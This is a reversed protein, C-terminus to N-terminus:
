GQGDNAAPMADIYRRILEIGERHLLERGLEPMQVGPDDSEMRHVLISRDAHGPAINFDHGGSGRGAAVPRKLIGRAVSDPEEYTLFLGSNSASGNRRHCHACNVDLYARAREDLTGTAPDDWVAIRPADAPSRGLIGWDVWQALRTGNNLNRASPGIPQIEDDRQHCGKCQNQNPVRYSFERTEGDADIFSAPMRRGARALVAETGDANWVYPLAVWGDPRRLMVRTELLRVPSDPDRFDAPYGFSKILASGVPFEFTGDPAYAIRQGPPVYVWRQKVAYDTFLPTNLEYAHVRANPEQAHDDFFFAFDSLQRPYGDDMIAADNVAPVDNLGALTLWALLVAILRIM